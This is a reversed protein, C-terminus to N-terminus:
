RRAVDRSAGGYIEVNFVNSWPSDNGATTGLAAGVSRVRTFYFGRGLEDLGASRGNVTRDVVINRFFEDKAIQVQFAGTAPSTWTLPGAVGATSRHLLVPAVVPPPVISFGSPASFQGVRGADGLAVVRWTYNGPPFATTPTFSPSKLNSDDIALDTFKDNRAVQLRYAKAGAVPQWAFASPAGSGLSPAILQKLVVFSHSGNNGELGLGDIARTRLYYRGPAIAPFRIKPGTAVLDAIPNKFEADRALQGRYKVAKAVAAFQFEINIDDVEAPFSAVGPAPLLEIPPLPARGKEAVTGFGQTLAIGAGGPTASTVAVKGELVESSARLGGDEASVRFITGRVGMNSTPTRIEYRSATSKQKAVNTEVRGSELRVISDAVGGTNALLRLNELKVASKSQVTLTSGDALQITVFGDDGTSLRDGEKMTAGVAAPGDNAQVTGQVSLVKVPAPETRMAEAPIRVLTNLPLANPNKFNNIRQLSRWDGGNILFRSAIHILNDGQKTRYEYMRVEDAFARPALLLALCATLVSAGITLKRLSTSSGTNTLAQSVM